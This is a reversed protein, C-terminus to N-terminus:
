RRVALDFRSVSRGELGVGYKYARDRGKRGDAARRRERRELGAHGASELELSM